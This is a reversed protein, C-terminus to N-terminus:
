EKLSLEIQNEQAACPFKIRHIMCHQVAASRKIRWCFEM